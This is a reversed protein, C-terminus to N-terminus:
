GLFALGLGEAWFCIFDFAVVWLWKFALVAWVGLDAHWFNFTGCAVVLRCSFFLGFKFQLGFRLGLLQPASFRWLWLYLVFFNAVVIHLQLAL